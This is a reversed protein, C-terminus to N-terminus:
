LRPAPPPLEWLRALVDVGDHLRRSGPPRQMEGVECVRASPLGVLGLQAALVPNDGLDGEVARALAITGLEGRWPAIATQIDTAPHITVVRPLGRPRFHSAPLEVVLWSGVEHTRGLARGLLVLTRRAVSESPDRDGPPWRADAVRLADLLPTLDAAERVFVGAPSMCGRGDYLAHDRALGTAVEADLRDVLAVGFRPGFGFVPIRARSSVAAITEASGFLLAVEAGSMAASEADIDGGLWDEAEVGPLSSAVADGVAALGTASKLVVRVGRASLAWAWEIPATFVNASAIILASSPATGPLPRATDVTRAAAIAIAWAARAHDAPLGTGLTAADIAALRDLPHSM